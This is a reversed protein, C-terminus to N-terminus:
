WTFKNFFVSSTQTRLKTILYLEIDEARTRSNDFLINCSLQSQDTTQYNNLTSKMRKDLSNM